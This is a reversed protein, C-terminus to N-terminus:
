ATLLHVMYREPPLWVRMTTGIGPRSTIDLRGGHLAILRLALPLGLGVGEKHRCMPAEIRRFPKMAISVEEKTMGCGSDRIEVVLGGETGPEVGVVVSVTGGPDSFKIANGILNVFVQTIRESDVFVFIPGPYLDLEIRVDNEEAKARLLEISTEVSERIDVVEPDVALEGADIRSIDLVDDVLKHLIKGATVINGLYGAQPHPLDGFHGEHLAEAFGIIANLPTRLEHSVNALFDTKARNSAEVAAKAAFLQKEFDKRDSIDILVNIAGIVKNSTDRFPRANALVTRRSGDQREIIIECDNFNRGERLALAMWCSDHPIPTGDPGFLKLSGCFRDVHSNRLPKRGWLTVARENYYTILGERNCSYAAVPLRDLIQSFTLTEPLGVSLPM